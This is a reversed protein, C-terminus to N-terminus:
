QVRQWCTLPGARPVLSLLAERRSYGSGASRPRLGRRFDCLAGVCEHCGVTFSVLIPPKRQSLPLTPACPACPAAAPIQRSGEAIPVNLTFSNPRPAAYISNPRPAAYISNPRPEACISNPRPAAYMRHLMCPCQTASGLPWTLTSLAYSISVYNM